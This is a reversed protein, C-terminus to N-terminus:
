LDLGKLYIEAMFISSIKVTSKVSVINFTLDIPFIEDIKTAKKFFMFKILYRIWISLVAAALMLYNDYNTQLGNHATSPRNLTPQSQLIEM